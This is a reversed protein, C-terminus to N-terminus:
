VRRGAGATRQRAVVGGSRPVEVGASFGGGVRQRRLRVDDALHLPFPRWDGADGTPRNGGDALPLVLGVWARRVEAPADGPPMAVVRIFTRRGSPVAGTAAIVVVVVLTLVVAAVVVISAPIERRSSVDLASSTSRSPATGQPHSPGQPAPKATSKAQPVPNPKDAAGPGSAPPEPASRGPRQWDPPSPVVVPPLQPPLAPNYNPMLGSQGPWQGEGGVPGYRPQYPIPIPNYPPVLGPHFAPAPVPRPPPPVVVRGFQARGAEALTFLITVALAVRLTTTM